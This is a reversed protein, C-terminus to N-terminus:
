GASSLFRNHGGGNVNPTCFYSLLNKRRLREVLFFEGARESRTRGPLHNVGM